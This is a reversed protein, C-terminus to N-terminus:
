EVRAQYAAWGAERYKQAEDKPEKAQYIGRGVIIIDGGNEVAKEPTNYTQGLADGGAALQIGPIFILFDNGAQERIKQLIEPRDASGIFGLVFDTNEKAIQVTQKAYEPTFLNGAPTMQALLILGSRKNVTKLGAVIGPGVITHANVLDAWDAIRYVGSAFQLSVTNGIDAFKRDEFILFNKAEALARLKKPFEPTFDSIVDVHTKLVCIEDGIKEALDLIEAGSDLDAAVCLNTQKSQIIDRLKQTIPHM